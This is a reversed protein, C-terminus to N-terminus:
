CQVKGSLGRPKSPRIRLCRLLEMLCQQGACRDASDSYLLQTVYSLWRTLFGGRDFENARKTKSLTLVNKQVAKPQHSAHHSPPLGIGVVTMMIMAVLIEVSVTIDRIELQDVLVISPKQWPGLFVQM